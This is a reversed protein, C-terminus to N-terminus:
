SSIQFLAKNKLTKYEPNFRELKKKNKNLLKNYDQVHFDYHVRNLYIKQFQQPIEELLQVAVLHKELGAVSAAFKQVNNVLAATSEDYSDILSSEKMSEQNYRMQKTKENAKRLSDVVTQDHGPIYEIEQLLRNINFFMDEENKSMYKWSYQISDELVNLKHITSDISAKAIKQSDRTQKCNFLVFFCCCSLILISKSM